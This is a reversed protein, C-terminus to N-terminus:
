RASAAVLAQTEEVDEKRLGLGFGSFYVVGLTVVAYPLAHFLDNLYNSGEVDTGSLGVSDNSLGYVAVAILTSGGVRNFFYSIIITLCVSVAFFSVQASLFALWSDYNGTIERPLHWAGWLLGLFIATCMPSMVQQLLPLAYGRWGTEELLGGQDLFLASVYFWVFTATFLDIGWIWVPNMGAAWYCAFELLKLALLVLAMLVWVRVGESAGVGNRWPKMRDLLLRLGQGGFHVAAMLIGAITPAAAFLNITWFVPNILCARVMPVLAAGRPEFGNEEMTAFLLPFYEGVDTLGFWRPALVGALAIAIPISLAVAFFWWFYPKSDM